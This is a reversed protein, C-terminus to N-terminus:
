VVPNKRSLVYERIAQLRQMLPPHSYNLFVYFPHPQLNSLNTRALKELASIMSGPDAITAAAFRDAESEHQRSIAQMVLSLVMEIPTYLLGFFLLGAYVSSQQMYFAQYLGPTKLFVSLLFFLIGTHIVSIAMGQPIHKKKYHGVEHALVAVLEATTHRAVLTDFLAIRKNRGFGTFFANSRTSRKSADIIYVDRVPFDVSQTYHIIADKLEGPAMPTFKNFLPMLWTPAVYQVILSFLTVAAWGYLWAYSGGFQLLALIAALLPVGLIVAILAGKVTDLLFTKPTTRNFGFRQEIVFTTYISFPLNLLSYAAALIGIYFLGSVLPSFGWGKIFQDLINFGGAFWFALLVALHFSTTFIGFRTATRTYEQSKRYDDPNYINGLDAPLEPTLNSLNLLDAILHVTFEILLAALIIFAYINMVGNYVIETM